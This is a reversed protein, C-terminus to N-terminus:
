TEGGAARAARGRDLSTYPSAESYGLPGGQTIGSATSDARLPLDFKGEDSDAAEAVEAKADDSDKITDMGEPSKADFGQRKYAALTVIAKTWLLVIGPPNEDFSEVLYRKRLRGAIWSSVDGINADLFGPYLTELRDVEGPTMSTRLKFGAVTLYSPPTAM